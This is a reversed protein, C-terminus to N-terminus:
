NSGFYLGNQFSQLMILIAKIADLSQLTTSILKDKINFKTKYFNSYYQTLYQTALLTEFSPPIKNALLHSYYNIHSFLIKYYLWGGRLSVTFDNFEFKFNLSHTKKMFVACYIETLWYSGDRWIESSETTNNHLFKGFIPTDNPPSLMKLLTWPVDM